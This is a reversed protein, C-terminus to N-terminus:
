SADYTYPLSDRGKRQNVSDGEDSLHSHRYVQVLSPAFKM